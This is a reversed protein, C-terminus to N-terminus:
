NVISLFTSPSKSNIPDDTPKQVSGFQLLILLRSLLLVPGHLIIKVTPLSSLSISKIRIVRSSEGKDVSPFLKPSQTHAKLPEWACRTENGKWFVLIFEWCKGAKLPKGSEIVQNWVKQSKWPMTNVHLYEYLLCMYMSM